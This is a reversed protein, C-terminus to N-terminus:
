TTLKQADWFRAGLSNGFSKNLDESASIFSRQERNTRGIPLYRGLDQVAAGDLTVVCSPRGLLSKIEHEYIPNSTALPLVQKAQEEDLEISLFETRIGEKEFADKVIQRTQQRMEENLGYFAAPILIKRKM